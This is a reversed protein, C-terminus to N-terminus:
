NNLRFTIPVDVWATVIRSGRRAPVFRWDRVADLAAKDLLPHGSSKRIAVHHCRGNDHIEARIVVTGEIGRRRAAAPYAPPNNNLYAASYIPEVDDAADEDKKAEARAAPTEGTEERRTEARPKSPATKTQLPTVKLKPPLNTILSVQVIPLPVAGSGIAPWRGIGYGVVLHVAAILAFAILWHSPADASEHRPIASIHSMAAEPPM